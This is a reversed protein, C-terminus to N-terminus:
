APAIKESTPSCKATPPRLGCATTFFGFAFGAASLDDARLSPDALLTVYPVNRDSTTVVGSAARAYFDGLLVDTQPPVAIRATFDIRDPPAEAVFGHPGLHLPYPYFGGMLRCRSRVCGFGGLRVPIETTFDVDLEVIAGPPVPVPLPIRAITDRGSPSLGTTASVATMGVGVRAARIHMAAPSFGNPYLWHFNVDGLAEPRDGLRNPYLWLSVDDLPRDSLNPITLRVTGTILRAAPDLTADLDVHPRVPAPRTGPPPPSTGCPRLRLAPPPYRPVPPAPPCFPAPSVVDAHTASVGVIVAAIAAAVQTRWRAGRTATRIRRVTVM